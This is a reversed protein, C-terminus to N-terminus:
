FDCIARSYYTYCFPNIRTARADLFMLFRARVYVLLM